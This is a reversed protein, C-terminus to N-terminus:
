AVAALDDGAALADRAKLDKYVAHGGMGARPRLVAAASDAFEAIDNLRQPGHVIELAADADIDPDDPAAGLRVHYRLFGIGLDVHPNRRKGVGVLQNGFDEIQFRAGFADAYFHDAFQIARGVFFAIGAGGKVFM